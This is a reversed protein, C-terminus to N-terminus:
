FTSGYKWESHGWHVLLDAGLRKADIALDCAGYATSGWIIVEANTHAKIQDAIEKAKPKLGDPLQICVSKINNDLMHKILRDLELDYDDTISMSTLLDLLKFLHHIFTISLAM